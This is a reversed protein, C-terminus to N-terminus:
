LAQFRKRGRDRLAFGKVLRVGRLMAAVDLGLM